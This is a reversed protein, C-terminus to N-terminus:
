ARHQESVFLSSGAKGEHILVVTQGPLWPEGLSDALDGKWSVRVAIEDPEM